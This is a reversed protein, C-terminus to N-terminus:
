YRDDNARCAACTGNCDRNCVPNHGRRVAELLRALGLRDVEVPPLPEAPPPAPEDLGLDARLQEVAALLEPDQDLDVPEGVMGDEIM